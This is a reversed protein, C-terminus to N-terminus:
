SNGKSCDTPRTTSILGPRAEGSGSAPARPSAGAGGASPTHSCRMANRYSSDRLTSGGSLM